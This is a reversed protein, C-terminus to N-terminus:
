SIKGQHLDIRASKNIGHCCARPERYYDQFGEHHQVDQRPDRLNVKFPGPNLSCVPQPM